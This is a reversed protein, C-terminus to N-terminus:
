NFKLRNSLVLPELVSSLFDCGLTKRPVALKPADNETCGAHNHILWRRPKDSSRPHFPAHIRAWLSIAQSAGVRRDATLQSLYRSHLINRLWQLLRLGNALYQCCGSKRIHNPSGSSSARHGFSLGRRIWSGGFRTNSLIMLGPTLSVRNTWLQM